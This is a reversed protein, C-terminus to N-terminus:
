GAAFIGCRIVEVRVGLIEQGASGGVQPLRSRGQLVRLTRDFFRATLVAITEIQEGLRVKFIPIRGLGDHSLLLGEAKQQAMAAVRAGSRPALHFEAKSPEFDAPLVYLLYPPSRQRVFKFIVSGPMTCRARPKLNNPQNRAGGVSNDPLM